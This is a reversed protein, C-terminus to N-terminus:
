TPTIHRNIILIQPFRCFLHLRQDPLHKDAMAVIAGILIGELALQKDDALLNFIGDAIQVQIM